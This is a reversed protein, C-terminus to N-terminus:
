EASKEELVTSRRSDLKKRITLIMPLPRLKPRLGLLRDSPSNMVHPVGSVDALAMISSGGGDMNTANWCGLDVMFCGLEHLSMGESYHKQRGDVVVLWMVVGNQDAGIATRPHLAGAPPVVTKGERVIQQFGAMGEVVSGDAPGDAMFVRGEDNVWVSAYSPHSHSRMKGGAVALGHIDVPQGEFWSRDKKGTIDPFSDWPNTNVFALVSRNGALKLPDTLAAEAPGGGDPDSAIAVAPQVKGHGLDVRLIHVRNPRPDKQELLRYELGLTKLDYGGEPSVGGAFVFLVWLACMLMLLFRTSMQWRWETPENRTDYTGADVTMEGRPFTVARARRSARQRKCGITRRIRNSM